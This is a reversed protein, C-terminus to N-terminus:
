AAVRRRRRKRKMGAVRGYPCPLTNSSAASGQTRYSNCARLVSLAPDAEAGGGLAPRAPAKAGRRERAPKLDHALAQAPVPDYGHLGGGNAMSVADGRGM